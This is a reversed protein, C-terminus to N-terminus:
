KEENQQNEEQRSESIVHHSHEAFVKLAGGFALLAWSRPGDHFFARAVSRPKRRGAWRM